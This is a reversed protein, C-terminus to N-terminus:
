WRRANAVIVSNDISFADRPLGNINWQQIKVPDGLCEDELRQKENQTAELQNQLNQLKEEVEALAAQTKKLFAMNEALEAEAEALKARKPAVIKAVRDYQEMALIWKCLGEAASSARAVKVPDFEPNTMFDKRIRLM